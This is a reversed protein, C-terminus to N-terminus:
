AKEQCKQCQGTILYERRSLESTFDTAKGDCYACEDALIATRRRPFFNDVPRRPGPDAM